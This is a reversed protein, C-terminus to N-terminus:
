VTAITAWTGNINVQVASYAAWVSPTYNAGSMGTYVCGSPLDIRGGSDPQTTRGSLRVGIVAQSAIPPQNNPSYVRQGDESITGATNLSGNIKGGTIPLAGTNSASPPNNTSFIEAIFVSDVQFVLRQNNGWALNIKNNGYGDIGGQQVSKYDGVNGLGIDGANINVVGTKNNVSTVPAGPIDAIMKKIAKVVQNTKTGDPLIGADSLIATLELQVDRIAGQQNNMHLATVITGQTGQSPNGEHFLGDETNIPPMLTQM